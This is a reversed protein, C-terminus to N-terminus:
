AHPESIGELIEVSHVKAVLPKKEYGLNNLFKRTDEANFGFSTYEKGEANDIGMYSNYLKDPSEGFMEDDGFWRWNEGLGSADNKGLDKNYVLEATKENLFWDRGDPDILVIPNGACYMYPSMSPYKDSMPDVSLWVSM